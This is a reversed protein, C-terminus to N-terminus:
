EKQKYINYTIFCVHPFKPLVSVNSFLVSYPCTSNKNTNLFIVHSDVTSKTILLSLLTSFQLPLM